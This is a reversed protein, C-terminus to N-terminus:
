LTFPSIPLCTAKYVRGKEKVCASLLDPLVQVVRRAPLFTEVDNIQGSSIDTICNMPRLLLTHVTTIFNKM